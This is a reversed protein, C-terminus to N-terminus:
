AIAAVAANLAAYDPEVGPNATVEVYSIIGEKDIVYVARAATDMGPVNALNRFLVDYANVVQRNFDALIPFNLNNKQAFENASFPLDVSIGFVKANLSNLSALQDRLTCLENQCVGTFSAPFFALVVTQGKYASLTHSTLTNDVLTFDPAAQGIALAM